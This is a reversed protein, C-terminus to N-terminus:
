RLGESWSSSRFAHPIRPGTGSDNASLSTPLKKGRACQIVTPHTRISPWVSHTLPPPCGPELIWVTTTRTACCRTSPTHIEQPRFNTLLNIVFPRHMIYKNNESDAELVRGNSVACLVSRFYVFSAHSPRQWHKWQLRCAPQPLRTHRRARCRARRAPATATMTSPM